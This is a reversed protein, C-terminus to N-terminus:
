YLGLLWGHLLQLGLTSLRPSLGLLWGHLLQLRLTSLRPSLPKVKQLYASVARRESVALFYRLLSMFGRQFDIFSSRFCM